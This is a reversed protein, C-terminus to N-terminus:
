TSWVGGKPLSASQVVHISGNWLRWAATVNGNPDVAVPVVGIIAVGGIPGQALTTTTWVTAGTPKVAVQIKNQPSPLAIPDQYTWSVAMTGDSGVAVKPSQSFGNMGSITFPTGWKGASQVAAGITAGGSGTYTFQDWAAITLGNANVAVDNLQSGRTPDPQCIPSIASASSWGNPPPKKSAPQALGPTQALLTQFTIFIMLFLLSASFSYEKKM